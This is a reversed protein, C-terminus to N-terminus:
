QLRILPRSNIDSSTWVVCPSPRGWHTDEWSIWPQLGPARNVLMWTLLPITCTIDISALAMIRLYPSANQNANLYPSSRIGRYVKRIQVFNFVTHNHPESESDYQSNFSFRSSKSGYIGSITAIALLPATMTCIMVITFYTAPYCGIEEFINYRHGTNVYASFNITWAGKPLFITSM